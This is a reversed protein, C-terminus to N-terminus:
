TVDSTKQQVGRVRLKGIPLTLLEGGDMQELESVVARSIINVQSASDIIVPFYKNKVKLKIKVIDTGDFGWKNQDTASM